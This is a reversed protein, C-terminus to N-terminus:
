DHAVAVPQGLAPRVDLHDLAHEAHTAALHEEDAVGKVVALDRM